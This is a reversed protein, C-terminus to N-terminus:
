ETRHKYEVRKEFKQQLDSFRSERSDRALSQVLLGNPRDHSRHCAFHPFYVGNLVIERRLIPLAYAPPLNM